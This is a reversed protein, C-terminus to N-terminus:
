IEHKRLQLYETPDIAADEHIICECEAFSAIYSGDFFSSPHQLRIYVESQYSISRGQWITLRKSRECISNHM